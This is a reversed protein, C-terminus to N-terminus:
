VVVLGIKSLPFSSSLPLCFSVSPSLPLLLSLELILRKNKGSDFQTVIERLLTAYRLVSDTGHNGRRDTENTVGVM